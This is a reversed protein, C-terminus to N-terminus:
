QNEQTVNRITDTLNAQKKRLKLELIMSLLMERRMLSDHIDRDQMLKIANMAARLRKVNAPKDYLNAYFDPDQYIKKTLVEMQAFYSPRAGLERIIESDALGMERMLAFLYPTSTSDAPAATKLAIYNAFSNQAVSRMAVVSRMDMYPIVYRLLISKSQSTFPYANHMFIYDLLAFINQEDASAGPDLVDVNLSLPADLTQTFNIDKNQRAAAGSAGQCLFNNQTYNDEIDCFNVIYQNLRTLEDSSKGFVTQVDGTALSRTVMEETMLTKTLDSRRETNALDRVFTGIECMQESPHYDKHARATRKQFIRQSELQHKADFFMGIMEVQAFMTTTIEATMKQFSEIWTILGEILPANNVAGQGTILPNTIGALNGGILGQLLNNIPQTAQAIVIDTLAAGLIGGADAGDPLNITITELNPDLAAVTTINFSSPLSGLTAPDCLRLGCNVVFQVDGLGLGNNNLFDGIFGNLATIQQQSSQNGFIPGALNINFGIPEALPLPPRQQGIPVTPLGPLTPLNTIPVGPLQQHYQVELLTTEWYQHLVAALVQCVVLALSISGVLVVVAAKVPFPFRYTAPATLLGGGGASPPTPQAFSPKLSIGNAFSVSFILPLVLLSKRNIM